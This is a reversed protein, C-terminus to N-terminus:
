SPDHDGEQDAEDGLEIRGADDEGRDPLDEVHEDPHDLREDKGQQRDQIELEGDLLLTVSTVRRTWDLYSFGLFIGAVVCFAMSNAPAKAPPPSARPPPAIPAATPSPRAPLWVMAPM